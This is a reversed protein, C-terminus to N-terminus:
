ASAAAGLAPDAGCGILGVNLSPGSFREPGLLLIVVIGLIKIM